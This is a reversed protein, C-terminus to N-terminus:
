EAEILGFVLLNQYGDRTHVHERFVVECEFGLQKLGESERTEWDFIYAYAKSCGTKEMVDRLWPGFHIVTPMGHLSFSLAAFKKDVRTIEILLDLTSSVYFGHSPSALLANWESNSLGFRSTLSILSRRMIEPLRAQVLPM